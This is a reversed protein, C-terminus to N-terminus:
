LRSFKQPHPIPRTGIMSGRCAEKMQLTLFLWARWILHTQIEKYVGKLFKPWMETDPREESKGSLYWHRPTIWKDVTGGQRQKAKATMVKWVHCGDVRYWHLSNTYCHTTRTITRGAFFLVFYCKAPQRWCLYCLQCWVKQLVPTSGYVPWNKGGLM